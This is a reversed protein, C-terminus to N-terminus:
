EILVLKKLASATVAYTSSDYQKASPFPGFTILIIQCWLQLFRRMRQAM